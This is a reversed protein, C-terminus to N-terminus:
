DTYISREQFNLNVTRSLEFQSNRFPWNSRETIFYPKATQKQYLIAKSQQWAGFLFRTTRCGGDLILNRTRNQWIHYVKTPWHLSYPSLGPQGKRFRFPTDCPYMLLKSMARPQIQLRSMYLRVCCGYISLFFSDEVRWLPYGRDHLM